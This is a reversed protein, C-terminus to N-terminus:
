LREGWAVGAVLWDGRGSQEMDIVAEQQYTDTSGGALETRNLIARFQASRQAPSFEETEMGALEATVSYFGEASVGLQKFSELEGLYANTMFGSLDNIYAFGADSSYTGFREIFFVAVDEAERELASAGASGGAAFPNVAAFAAANEADFVAGEPLGESRDPLVVTEEEQSPQEPEGGPFLDFMVAVVLGFAILGGLIIIIIKTRQEM